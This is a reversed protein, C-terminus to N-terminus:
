HLLLSLVFNLQGEKVLQRTKSFIEAKSCYVITYNMLLSVLVIM